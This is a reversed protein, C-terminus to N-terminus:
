LPNACSLERLRSEPLSPPKFPRLALATERTVKISFRHLNTFNIKPRIRFKISLFISRKCSRM